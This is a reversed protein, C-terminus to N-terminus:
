NVDMSNEKLLLLLFGNKLEEYTYMGSSSDPVCQYSEKGEM